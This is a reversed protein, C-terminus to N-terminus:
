DRLIAELPTIKRAITLPYAISLITVIALQVFGLSVNISRVIPHFTDGGFLLGLMDNDGVPINMAALGWVLLIGCLIGAGGFVLALQATEALLLKGVFGKRAGIARMMGIEASRELAAMSLTNMIIIVAVFFVFMVFLFLAGQAISSVEGLDALVEPWTLVRVGLDTGTVAGEIVARAEELDVGDKLKIMIISYIGTDLDIPTGAHKERRTREQLSETAFTGSSLEADEVFGGEAFMDDGIDTTLIAQHEASLEHLKDGALVHGFAERYSEIDVFNYMNGWVTNLQKFRYIGKVPVRIDTQLSEGSQGLLVV